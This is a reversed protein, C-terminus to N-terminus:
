LMINSFILEPNGCVHKRRDEALGSKLGLVQPLWILRATNILVKSAFDSGTKRLKM